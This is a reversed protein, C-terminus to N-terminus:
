DTTVPDLRLTTELIEDRVMSPTSADGDYKKV